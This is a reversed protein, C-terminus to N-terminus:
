QAQRYFKYIYLLNRVALRVYRYGAKQMKHVLMAPFGHIEVIWEEPIALTNVDTTLITWECGECDMKVLNPRYSTLFEGLTVTEVYVDGIDGGSSMGSVNLGVVDNSYWIAKKIPTIVKSMKNLKVTAVLADYFVPEVAYIKSAGLRAFMLSTEGLFAGVDAVVRGKVDTFVYMQEYDEYLAHEILYKM